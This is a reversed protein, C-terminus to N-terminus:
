RLFATIPLSNTLGEQQLYIIDRQYLLQAAELMDAKQKTTGTSLLINKQPIQYGVSLMAKLVAESTDLGICGVEGTSAMDVGM